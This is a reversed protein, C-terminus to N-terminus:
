LFSVSSKVSKFFKIVDSLRQTRKMPPLSDLFVKGYSKGLLRPDCLMLVGRDSVDRILRGAGQKLTIVANPLQYDRFPNKGQSRIAALRAQLVPDGPSSFPLKDIIVCSLADGRVDVGEWFSSSGLLVANGLERFQQLLENRPASGQVLLPFELQAQLIGAAEQLARHSTFLMFTRGGCAYIVPLAADVVAQTYDTAAPQPMKEPLYLLTQRSYDFPSDWCRMNADLLGLQMSFHDFKEDVALTASTFIWARKQGQMQSAFIDAINIPTLHLVFSNKLTEFWHIHQEPTKGTLLTFREKLEKCRQLARKLASSREEALELGAELLAMGELLNEAAKTVVTSKAAVLWPARQQEIGFALRMDRVQKELSDAAQLLAEMDAADQMQAIRTDHCLELLQRGSLSIGFFNSAVEPLQHAEDFIIANAGPLLEGFGEDRLAMDAFFLHHNVILIEAKQAKRRAKVLYCDNFYECEQGLCNETTSTVVFWIPSDEPVESFEAIDGSKTRGSWKHIQQLQAMNKPTRFRGKLENNYLRHLCLYNARGKLLSITVPESLASRVQPLDRYYLQDQLNKTGTSIIVKNGSLIAPVLYAMTKGTGTGAECILVDYDDLAAMVAEAMEQQQKRPAFSKLIKALPGQDGLIETISQM